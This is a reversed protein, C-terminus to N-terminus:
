ILRVLRLIRQKRRSYAAPHHMKQSDGFPGRRVEMDHQDDNPKAETNLHANSAKKPILGERNLFSDCAEMRYGYYGM